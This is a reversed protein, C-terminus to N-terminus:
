ALKAKESEAYLQQKKAKIENEVQQPSKRRSRDVHSPDPLYNVYGSAFRKRFGQLWNKPWYYVIFFLTPLISALIVLAILFKGWGPYQFSATWTKSGPHLPSFPAQKCGVYASYTPENSANKVVSAIFVIILALPSIYKWCILWFINPRSGTMYEIDNAFNENGYVWSVAVVQFFAILLLPLTVSYNDFIQFIYFGPGSVMALGILFMVVAVIGTFLSKNMKIWGLEYMPSIAAELTGFESDIGLLILMSFFLIAWFPSADMLLLAHSFTMFALGPGSGLKTADIGTKLERYGLISFVVIGAFISTLCNIFVVTYADRTCNNKEPMYSAFAILAGFGLSLTFFMQTAADMWIEPEKLRSFDPKFFKEIGKGAGELTVGRFFLIILVVYPFVATFYVVKGSSQIGKVVCLYTVVWAVILCVTLKTNLGVGADDIAPSIQLAKHYFYWQPTDQVCCDPFSDRVAKFKTKVTENPANAIQDLIKKFPPYNICNKVDWPLNSTFSMYFYYVCWSLVIVYYVCLALSVVICSIGIGYLAPHIEKWALVATKRFRQGIAFEIFFLPLGEIVMFIIYPILFAGGGNRQCLYPFRWINGLGVALGVSALLFEAKHGWSDRQPEVVIEETKTALGQQSQPVKEISEVTM